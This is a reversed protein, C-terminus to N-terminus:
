KANRTQYLMAITNRVITNLKSWDNRQKLKKYKDVGFNVMESYVNDIKDSKILTNMTTVFNRVTLGPIIITVLAEQLRVVGYVGAISCLKLPNIGDPVVGTVIFQIFALLELKNGCFDVHGADSFQQQKLYTKFYDSQAELLWKSMCVYNHKDEYEDLGIGSNMLKRKKKPRRVQKNTNNTNEDNTIMYYIKIDGNVLVNEFLKKNYNLLKADYAIHQKDFGRDMSMRWEMYFSMNKENIENKTVNARFIQSYKKFDIVHYTKSGVAVGKSLKFIINVTRIDKNLLVPFQHCEWKMKIVVNVLSTKTKKSMEFWGVYRGFRVPNLKGEDLAEKIPWRCKGSETVEVSM